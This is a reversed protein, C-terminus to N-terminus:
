VEVVRRSGLMRDARGCRSPGAEGVDGAEHQRNGDAPAARGGKQRPQRCDSFDVRPCAPPPLAHSLMRAAERKAGPGRASRSGNGELQPRSGLSATSFPSARCTIIASRSSYSHSPKVYGSKFQVRVTGMQQLPISCQAIHFLGSQMFYFMKYYSEFYTSVRCRDTTRIREM